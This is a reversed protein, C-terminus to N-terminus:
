FWHGIGVHAQAGSFRTASESASGFISGTNVSGGIGQYYGGGVNVLWGSDFRHEFGAVDLNLWEATNGTDVGLSVGLGTYVHTRLSGMYLKPMASFQLGSGGLGFGGELLLHPLARVNFAVGLLGIPSNGGVEFRVSVRGGDDTTTEPTSTEATSADPALEGRTRCEELRLMQESSPLRKWEPSAEDCNPRTAGQALAALPLTVAAILSCIWPTSNM